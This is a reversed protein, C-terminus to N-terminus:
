IEVISRYKLIESNIWSSYRHILNHGQSNACKNVSSIVIAILLLEGTTKDIIYTGGGSDGICPNSGSHSGSFTKFFLPTSDRSDLYYAFVMTTGERLDFEPKQSTRSSLGYGYSFVREKFVPIEGKFWTAPVYGKPLGGDFFILAIDKDNHKSFEDDYNNKIVLSKLNNFYNLFHEYEKQDFEYLDNSKKDSRSSMTTSHASAKLYTTMFESQKKADFRLRKNKGYAGFYISVRDIGGNLCHGATLITDKAIIVGSCRQKTTGNAEMFLLVSHQWAPMTNNVIKGYLSARSLSQEFEIVDPTNDDLHTAFPIDSSFALNCILTVCFIMAKVM